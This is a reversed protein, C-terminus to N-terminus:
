VELKRQTVCKILHMATAWESPSLEKDKDQDSLSWIQALQERPLGSKKLLVKAENGDIFGSGDADIRAFTVDYSAREESTM